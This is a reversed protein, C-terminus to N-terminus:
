RPKYEEEISYVSDIYVRIAYVSDEYYITDTNNFTDRPDYEAVSNRGMFFFIFAAAAGIALPAFFVMEKEKDRM